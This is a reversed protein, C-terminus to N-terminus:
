RFFTPMGVITLLATTLLFHAVSKFYFYGARRINIWEGEVVSRADVRIVPLKTTRSGNVKINNLGRRGYPTGDLREKSWTESMPTLM